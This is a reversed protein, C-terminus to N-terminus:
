VVGLVDYGGVGVHVFEEGVESEVVDGGVGVGIGGGVVYDVAEDCGVVFGVVVVDFVEM